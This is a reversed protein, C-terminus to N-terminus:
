LPAPDPPTGPQGITVEAATGEAAGSYDPGPAQALVTWPLLAAVLCASLSLAITKRLRAMRLM